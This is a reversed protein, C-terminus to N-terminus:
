RDAQLKRVGKVLHTFLHVGRTVRRFSFPAGALGKLLERPGDFPPVEMWVRGLEFPIHADSGVTFPIGMESAFIIGLRDEEGSITRANHGEVLDIKEVLANRTGARLVKSRYDCFPHPVLSLGGQGHIRDLTDAASLGPPIEESLFLGIIEGERTTVEEALVRPIGTNEAHIARMVRLSGELSDHDCVLPIIGTRKWSQFITKPPIISDQSYSSHVHMDIRLLDGRPESSSRGTGARQQM